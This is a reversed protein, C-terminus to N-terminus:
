MKRYRVRASREIAATVLPDLDFADRIMELFRLEEQGATMDVAAVEVTLAYATEWLKTPLAEKARRLIVDLGDSSELMEATETAIAGLRTRDFGAFVPLTEVILGIEGIEKETMTRDAMSVTVMLHILAEHASFTKSM